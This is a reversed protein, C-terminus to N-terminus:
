AIAVQRHPLRLCVRQRLIGPRLDTGPAPSRWGCRGATRAAPAGELAQLAEPDKRGRRTSPEPRYAGRNEDDGWLRSMQSRRQKATLPDVEYVLRILAAWTLRFRLQQSTLPQPTPKPVLAEHLVKQRMGRCKNSYYGYHRIQHEGKNPIHQTMAALFDLPEFIEHNRRIGEM